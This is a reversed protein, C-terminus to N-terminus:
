KKLKNLEKIVENIKDQLIMVIDKDSLKYTGKKSLMARTCILGVLEDQIDLEKIKNKM